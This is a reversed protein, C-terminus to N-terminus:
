TVRCERINTLAYSDSRKSVQFRRSEPRNAQSEAPLVRTEWMSAFAALLSKCIVIETPSNVEDVDGAFYLEIETLALVRLAMLVEDDVM